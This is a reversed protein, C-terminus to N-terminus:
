PNHALAFDFERKTHRGNELKVQEMIGRAHEPYHYINSKKHLRFKTQEAFTEWEHIKNRSLDRTLYHM